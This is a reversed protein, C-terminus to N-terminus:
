EFVPIRLIKAVRRELRAGRSDRWDPLMCIADCRLLTAIDVVMHLLWPREPKIGNNLPNVPTNDNLSIYYCAMAFKM